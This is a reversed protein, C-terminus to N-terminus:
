TSSGKAWKQSCVSVPMHAGSVKAISLQSEWVFIAQLKSASHAFLVSYQIYILPNLTFGLTYEM